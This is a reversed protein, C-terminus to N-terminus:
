LTKWCQDCHEHWIVSYDGNTKERLEEAKEKPLIVDYWLAPNELFRKKIKQAYEKPIIKKYKM